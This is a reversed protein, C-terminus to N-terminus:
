ANRDIFGGAKVPPGSPPRGQAFHIEDVEFEAAELSQRLAAIGRQLGAAATRGEAWLGVSLKKDALVLRAHVPGLPAIDLSFQVRWARKYDAEGVTGEAIQDIEFQVVSTATGINLPIEFLWSALPKSSAAMNASSSSAKEPLSAYQGLSVRALANGTKLALDRAIDLPQRGSGAETSIAPQGQPLLGRRPPPPRESAVGDPSPTERAQRDLAGLKNGYATRRGGVTPAQGAAQFWEGITAMTVLDPRGATQNM